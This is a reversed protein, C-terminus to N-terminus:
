PKIVQKCYFNMNPNNKVCYAMAEYVISRVYPIVLKPAPRESPHGASILVVGSGILVRMLLDLDSTMRPDVKLLLIQQIMYEKLNINIQNTKLVSV